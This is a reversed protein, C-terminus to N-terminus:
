DSLSLVVMAKRGQEVTSKSGTWDHIAEEITEYSYVYSDGTSVGPDHTIFGEENYGILVIMHYPPGGATYNPNNLTIGSAPIIVPYGAALTTKIAAVTVADDTYVAADLGYILRAMEALEEAGVDVGYGNAEEWELIALIQADSEEASLEEDNWFAVVMALAAEECAEQYPMSWDGTPAQSTFPVDLTLSAVNEDVEVTGTEVYELLRDLAVALEARNVSDDPRYSDDPDGQLINLEALHNVSDAYWADDSVDWFISYTALALSSLSVLLSIGLVGFILRSTKM